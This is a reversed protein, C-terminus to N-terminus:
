YCYAKCDELWSFCLWAGHFDAEDKTLYSHPKAQSMTNVKLRHQLWDEM